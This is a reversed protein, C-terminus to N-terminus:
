SQVLLGRQFNTLSEVGVETVRITESVEYGWPDLWLGGLLHFTMNPELKTLDGPRISATREGWNPPYALGITYGLRSEKTMGHRTLVERWAAEVDECLAGPRVADFAAQHAEGVIEALRRYGDPPTGLFFTRCLAAHYRHRCGALELVVPNGTEFPADSWSSHSSSSKRGALVIPFIAPYEGGFEATGRIQARVIEAVADCERVGPRIAEQAIEVAGTAIQAAVRMCEIEADSKVSRVWSVLTDADVVEARALGRQLEWWVRPTTYYADGEIGIRGRDWGREQLVEVFRESPHHDPYEIWEEPYTLVHDEDLRTTLRASNADQPRGLWIPQEASRDLLVAQPEYFSWADYGTLYNMSAPSQLVLADIDQAEMRARVRALRGEMEEADFHCM